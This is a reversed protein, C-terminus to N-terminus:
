GGHVGATQTRTNGSFMESAVNDIAGAQEFFEVFSITGEEDKDLADFVERWIQM